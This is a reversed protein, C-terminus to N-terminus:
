TAHESAGGADGLREAAGHKRRRSLDSVFDSLSNLVECSSPTSGTRAVNMIVSLGEVSIALYASYIVASPQVVGFPM